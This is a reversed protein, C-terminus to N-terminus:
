KRTNIGLQNYVACRGTSGRHFLAAGLLAMGVGAPTRRALGLAALAGGGVMSAWREMDGVNRPTGPPMSLEKRIDGLDMHYTLPKELTDPTHM